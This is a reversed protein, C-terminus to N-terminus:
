VSWEFILPKGEYFSIRDGLVMGYVRMAHLQSLLMDKELKTLEMFVGTKMFAALNDIRTFLENYEDKLKMVIIKEKEM